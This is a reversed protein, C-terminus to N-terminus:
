IEPAKHEPAGSNITEEDPWERQLTQTNSRSASSGEGEELGRRLETLKKMDKLLDKRQKCM